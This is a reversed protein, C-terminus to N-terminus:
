QIGNRRLRNLDGPIRGGLEEEKGRLECQDGKLHTNEREGGLKKKGKYWCAQSANQSNVVRTLHRGGRGLAQPSREEENQHVRINYSKIKKGGDRETKISDNQM